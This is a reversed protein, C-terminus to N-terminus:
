VLMNKIKIELEKNGGAVLLANRQMEKLSEPACFASVTSFGSIGQMAKLHQNDYEVSTISSLMGIEKLSQQNKEELIHRIFEQAYYQKLGDKSTLAIYQYLDNYNELPRTIVEYGRRELRNIDRQTGLFYPTKGNVFQVYADMPKKVTIEKATINELCLASIPQTYEGQSVLLTDIETPIESVLLPNAILVYGGRCWETAYVKDGVKGGNNTTNVNLTSAGGINVGAGFSIMDPTQGNDLAQKVSEVTHEVVMVLVGTNKKEFSRALKLLFQKRSGAGGEFSDVQWLTLIGKYEKQEGLTHNENIKFRGFFVTFLICFVMILM